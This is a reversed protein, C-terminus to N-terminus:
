ETEWLSTMISPLIFLVFVIDSTWEFCTFHSQFLIWFNLLTYIYIFQMINMTKNYSISISKMISVPNLAIYIKVLSASTFIYTLSNDQRVLSIVKIHLLLVDFKKRRVNEDTNREGRKITKEEVYVFINRLFHLVKLFILFTYTVIVCHQCLEIKDVQIYFM